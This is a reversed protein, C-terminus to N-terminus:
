RPYALVNYGVLTITQGSTAGGWRAQITIDLSAATNETASVPTTTSTGFGGSTSGGGVTMMGVQATLSNANTLIVRDHVLNTTTASLVRIQTSGLYVAFQKTSSSNNYTFAYEVVFFGNLGLLGGPLNATAFTSYTNDGAANASNRAVATGYGQGLLVGGSRNADANPNIIATGM